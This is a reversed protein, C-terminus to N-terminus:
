NPILPKTKVSFVACTVLLILRPLSSYGEADDEGDHHGQQQDDQEYNVFHQSLPVLSFHDGM